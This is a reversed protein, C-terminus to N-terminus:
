GALILVGIILPIFVVASIGSKTAVSKVKRDESQAKMRGNSEAVNSMVERTEETQLNALEASTPKAAGLAAMESSRAQLSRIRRLNEKYRQKQIRSHYEEPSITTTVSQQTITSKFSDSSAHDQSTIPISSSTESNTSHSELAQHLRLGRKQKEAHVVKNQRGLLKKIHAKWRQSRAVTLSSDDSHSKPQGASFTSTINSSGSPKTSNYAACQGNDFTTVFEVQAENPCTAFCSIGNTHVLSCKCDYNDGCVLFSSHFDNLCAQIQDPDCDVPVVATRVGNLLVLVSSFLRM